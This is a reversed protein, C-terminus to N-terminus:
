DVVIWLLFLYRFFVEKVDTVVRNIGHVGIKGKNEENHVNMSKLGDIECFM